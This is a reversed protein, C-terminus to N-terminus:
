DVVCKRFGDAAQVRGGESSSFFLPFLSPATPTSCLPYVGSSPVMEEEARVAVGNGVPVGKHGPFASLASSAFRYPHRPAFSTVNNVGLVQEGGLVCM